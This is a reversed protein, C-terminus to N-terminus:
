INRKTTIRSLDQIYEVFETLQADSSRSPLKGSRDLAEVMQSMQKDLAEEEHLALIKVHDLGLEVSTLIAQSILQQAEEYHFQVISLRGRMLYIKCLDEFRENKQCLEEWAQFCELVVELNQNTRDVQWRKLAVLTRNEHCYVQQNLGLSTSELAENWYHSALGWNGQTQVKFAKLMLSYTSLVESNDNTPFSEFLPSDSRLIGLQNQVHLIEVVIKAQEEMLSLRQLLALTESYVELAKDFLGTQVLSSAKAQLLTVKNKAEKYEFYDKFGGDVVLQALRLNPCGTREIKILDVWTTVNYRNAREYSRKDPFQGVEMARATVYSQVGYKQKLKKRRFLVKGLRFIGILLGGGVTLYIVHAYSFLLLPVSFFNKADSGYRYEDYNSIGDHDADERADIPDLPDLGMQYEFLNPIGDKDFDEAADRVDRPDLGYQYEWLNPIGDKDKDEMADDRSGDLGMMYEWLNPMGDKDKDEMADNYRPNLGWQHEDMTPIGDLDHDEDSKVDQPYHPNLLYIYEYFDGMSDGDTDPDTPETGLFWELSNILGDNDLDGFRDWYNRNSLGYNEEWSDAMNDQDYDIEEDELLLLQWVQIGNTATATALIRLDPSTVLKRAHNPLTVNGARSYETEGSRVWFVVKNQVDRTLAYGQMYSMALDEIGADHFSYSQELRKALAGFTKLTKDLSVSAFYVGDETTFFSLDTVEGTHDTFTWLRTGSSLRLVMITRDSSGSVIYNGVPGVSSIALSTIDGNHAAIEYLKEGTYYNWVKIVGEPWEGGSAMWPGTASLALCLVPTYHDDILLTQNGSLADWFRITADSGASILRQGDPTFQLDNVPGIHKSTLWLLSGNRLDWIAVSGDDSGGAIHYGNPSFAVTRVYNGLDSFNYLSSLALEAGVEESPLLVSNTDLFPTATNSLSTTTVTLLSILSTLFLTLIILNDVKRRMKSWGNINNQHRGIGLSPVSQSTPIIELRYLYEKFQKHIRCSLNTVFSQYSWILHNM